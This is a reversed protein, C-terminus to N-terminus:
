WRHGCRSHANDEPRKTQGLARKIADDLGPEITRIFWNRHLTFYLPYAADVMRGAQGLRPGHLLYRHRVKPGENRSYTITVREAESGTPLVVVEVVGCTTRVFAARTVGTFLGEQKSRLVEDVRIGVGELFRVFETAHVLEAPIEVVLPSPQGSTTARTAMFMWCTGAIALMVTLTRM